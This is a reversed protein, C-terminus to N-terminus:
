PVVRGCLSGWVQLGVFMVVNPRGKRLTHKAEKDKQNDKEKPLGSDLLGCLEDFVAKEIVQLWRRSQSLLHQPM